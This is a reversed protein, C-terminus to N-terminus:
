TPSYEFSQCVAQPHNLSFAQTNQQLLRLSNNNNYARNEYIWVYIYIYIDPNIFVTSFIQLSYPIKKKKKTNIESIALVALVAM